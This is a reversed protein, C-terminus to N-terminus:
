KMIVLRQSAGNGSADSIHCFYVGPQLAATSFTTAGTSLPVTEVLRQTVDYIYLGTNPDPQSNLKVTCSTAAPNPYLGFANEKNVVPVSSPCGVLNVVKNTMVVPNVDFYIGAENAITTNQALASKTDINFIVAGSCSDHHSSDLLNIAPFDFKVINDGAADKNYSIKMQHSAMQFRLTTIDLNPSLTDLIYINVAPANGTNVFSLTYQLTTSGPTQPFCGSPSVWMENPDCGARVTDTTSKTNNSTDCDGTNPGIRAFSNVTDGIPVLGALGANAVHYLSVVGATSVFGPLSWTFLNGTITGTSHSWFTGYKTSLAETVTADVPQCSGTNQVYVHGWQDEVGTVPIVDFVSLDSVVSPSCKLGFYSIGMEYTSDSLTDVIYSSAPSAAVFAAPLTITKLTYVDGPLGYTQYFFGGLSSITDIAIGNSDIETSVPCSMLHDGNDYVGNNNADYYYEAELTRCFRYTYSYSQSDVPVAGTLFVTKLTYTGPMAYDHNFVAYGSNGGYEEHLTATDKHGDGYYNIVTQAGIYYNTAIVISPGSCYENIFVYFSDASTYSIYPCVDNGCLPFSKVPLGNVSLLLAESYHSSDTPLFQVYVPIGLTIGTDIPMSISSDWTVNDFSVRYGRPATVTYNPSNVGFVTINAYFVTAASTDHVPTVFSMYSPSCGIQAHLGAVIACVAIITCFIKKM